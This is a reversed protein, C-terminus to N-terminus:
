AEILYKEVVKTYIQVAEHVMPLEVYEDRQHAMEMRGPGCVILPIGTRPRYVSADTYGTLSKPQAQAFISADTYATIGEPAKVQGKVDIIAEQMLKVFSDDVSTEVPARNNTVILNTKIGETKREIDGLLSKAKEIIADHSMGPLTRIDITLTCTDPVVNTKVGGQITAINMTPPTLLAHETYTFAYQRWQSIFDNMVLIANIGKDPMSGHAAKGSVTIELWLCGKEAVTIHNSTPEGIILAGVGALGGSEVFAKAGISNSEEDATAAFILDGALSAGSAKVAKMTMLAAALGAKMDAAGRGYLKGDAITASFPEYTWAVDAPPVVDTHGTLLLASQHGMGRIRGEVNARNNGLDSIKAAIGWSELWKAIKEALPKENGVPNTTNTQVLEQLISVTEEECIYDGIAM